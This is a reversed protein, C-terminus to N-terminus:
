VEMWVDGKILIVFFDHSPSSLQCWIKGCRLSSKLIWKEVREKLWM